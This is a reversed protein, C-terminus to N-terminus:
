RSFQFVNGKCHRVGMRRNRVSELHLIVLVVGFGGVHEGQQVSPDASIYKYISSHLVTYFTDSVGSLM